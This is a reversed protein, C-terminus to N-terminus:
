EKVEARPRMGESMVRQIETLPILLRRGVKCSAIRGAYADKRWSWRSRDTMIEATDVSVYEPQMQVMKGRNAM